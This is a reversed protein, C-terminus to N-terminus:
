TLLKLALLHVRSSPQHQASPPALTIRTLAPAVGGVQQVRQLRPNAPVMCRLTELPAWGRRYIQNKNLFTGVFAWM